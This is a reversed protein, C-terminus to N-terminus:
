NTEKTDLESLSESMSGAAAPRGTEGGLCLPCPSKVSCRGGAAVLFFRVASVCLGASTTGPLARKWPAKLIRGQDRQTPREEPPRLFIRGQNRLIKSKICQNM